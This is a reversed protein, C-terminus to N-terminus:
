RSAVDKFVSEIAAASRDWSFLKARAVGRKAYEDRLGRDALLRTLETAHAEPSDVDALVAADGAVEPVSTANSALMPTGCAMGELIPLGFGEYRSPFWAVAASRYLSCLVEDSVFGTALAAPDQRALQEAYRPHSSGVIVLRANVRDKIGAWARLLLDANKRHHLGGPVVVYPRDSLGHQRLFAEGEPSPPLLFRPTVGHHVWYLRGRLRPFHHLLRGASFKSITLVYGGTASLVQGLMWAAFRRRYTIWERAHAGPDLLAADHVEVLLPTHRAPIYTQFSSYVLDVDPWFAEAPPCGTLLWRRTQESSTGPTVHWQFDPWPPPLAGVFASHDRRSALMQLRLSPRRALHDVILKAVRGHGTSAVLNNPHVHVLVNM